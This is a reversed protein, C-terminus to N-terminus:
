GERSEKDEKKWRAKAAASRKKVIDEYNEKADVIYGLLVKYLIRVQVKCDNREKDEWEKEYDEVNAEAEDKKGRFYMLAAYVARGVAEDTMNEMIPIVSIDLPFWTMQKKRRAM